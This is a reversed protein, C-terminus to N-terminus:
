QKFVYRIDNIEIWYDESINSIYAFYHSNDEYSNDLKIYVSNSSDNIKDIKGGTYLISIYHEKIDKNKYEFLTIAINKDFIQEKIESYMKNDLKYGNEYKPFISYVYNEEFKEGIVLSSFEGDIVLKVKEFNTYNYAQSATKFTIFYNEIPFFGSITCLLTIVISVIIVNNRKYKGAKKMMAIWIIFIIAWFLIRIIGFM